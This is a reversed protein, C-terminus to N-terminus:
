FNLTENNGAILKGIIRMGRYFNKLRIRRTKGYEMLHVVRRNPCYTRVYDYLGAIKYFKFIDFRMKFTGTYSSLKMIELLNNKYTESAAEIDFEMEPIGLIDCGDIQISTIREGEGM